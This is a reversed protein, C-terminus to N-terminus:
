LENLINWLAIIALCMLVTVNFVPKELFVQVFVLATQWLFYIQHIGHLLFVEDIKDRRNTIAQVCSQM